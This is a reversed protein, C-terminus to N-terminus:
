VRRESGKSQRRPRRHIIWFQATASPPEAEIQSINGLMLLTISRVRIKYSMAVASHGFEHLLVSVFLM